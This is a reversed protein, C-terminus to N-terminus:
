PRVSGEPADPLELIRTPPGFGRKAALRTLRAPDRLARTAAVLERQQELLGKEERLADGLGFRVRILDVRLAALALAGVLVALALPLWRRRTQGLWGPQSRVHGVLDLRGVVPEM